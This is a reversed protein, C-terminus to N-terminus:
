FTKILIKLCFLSNYVCRCSITHHHTEFYMKDRRSSFLTVKSIQGCIVLLHTRFIDCSRWFLLDSLANIFFISRKYYKLIRPLGTVPYFDFMITEPTIQPLLLVMFIECTNHFSFILVFIVLAVLHPEFTHVWRM